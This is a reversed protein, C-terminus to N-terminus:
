HREVKSGPAGGHMRCRKKGEGSTVRLAQWFSDQRACSPSARMSGTNHPHGGEGVTVHQVTVKQNGGTRYRKLAEM